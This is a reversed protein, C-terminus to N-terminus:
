FYKVLFDRGRKQLQLNRVKLLVPLLPTVDLSTVTTDALVALM